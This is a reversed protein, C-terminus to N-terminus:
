RVRLRICFWSLRIFRDGELFRGSRSKECAHDSAPHSHGGGLAAAGGETRSLAFSGTLRRQDEGVM